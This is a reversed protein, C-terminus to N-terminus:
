EDSDDSGPTEEEHLMQRAIERLRQFGDLGLREGLERRTRSRRNDMIGLLLHLEKVCQLDDQLALEKARRVEPRNNWDFEQFDPYRGPPALRRVYEYKEQWEQVLGGSIGEFCEAVKSGPLELLAFLLHPTVYKRNMAECSTYAANLADQAKKEFSMGSLLQELALVRQPDLAVSPVDRESVEAAALLTESRTSEETRVPEPEELRLAALHGEVAKLFAPWWDRKAHRHMTRTSVGAWESARLKRVAWSTTCQPQLEEKYRKYGTGLKKAFSEESTIGLLEGAAAIWVDEEEKPNLVGRKNTALVRQQAGASVARFARDAARTREDPTRRDAPLTPDALALLVEYEPRQLRTERIGKSSALM